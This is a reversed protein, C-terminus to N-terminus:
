SNSRASPRGHPHFRLRLSCCVSDSSWQFVVLAALEHFSDVQAEPQAAAEARILEAWRSGPSVM